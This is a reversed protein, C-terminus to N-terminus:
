PSGAGRSRRKLPWTLLYAAQYLLTSVATLLVALVATGRPYALQAMGPRATDIREPRYAVGRVLAAPTMETTQGMMAGAVAAISDVLLNADGPRLDGFLDRVFLKREVPDLGSYGIALDLTGLRGVPSYTDTVIVPLDVGTLRELDERLGRASSCPDIPLRTVYGDPSNMIDIGAENLFTAHMGHYFEFREIRGRGERAPLGEAALDETIAVSARRRSLFRLPVLALTPGDQLMLEFKRPDKSFLKALIRARMSPRVDDLKITRGEFLAVVKSSVAVLDGAQPIVRANAMADALVAALSTTQADEPVLPRAVPLGYVGFTRPSATGPQRERSTEMRRAVHGDEEGKLSRLSSSVTQCRRKGGPCTM